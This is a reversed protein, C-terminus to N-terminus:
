CPSVRDRAVRCNSGASRFRLAALCRVIRLQRSSESVRRLRVALTLKLSQNEFARDTSTCLRRSCSCGLFVAAIPPKMRAIRMRIELYQPSCHTATRRRRFSPSSPISLQGVCVCSQHLREHRTKGLQIRPHFSPRIKKKMM